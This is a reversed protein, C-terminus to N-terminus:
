LSPADEDLKKNLAPSDNQQENGGALSSRLCLLLYAWALDSVVESPLIRNAKIAADYLFVLALGGLVLSWFGSWFPRLIDFALLPLGGHYSRTALWVAAAYFPALVAAGIVFTFIPIAITDANPPYARRGEEITYYAVNFFPASLYLLAAFLAFHWKAKLTILM